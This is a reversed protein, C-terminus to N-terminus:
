ISKINIFVSAAAATKIDKCRHHNAVGDDVKCKSIEMISLFNSISFTGFLLAETSTHVKGGKGICSFIISYWSCRNVIDVLSFVGVFGNQM